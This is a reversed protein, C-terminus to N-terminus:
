SAIETTKERVFERLMTISGLIALITGIFALGATSKIFESSVLMAAGPAYIISSLKGVHRVNEAAGLTERTYAPCTPQAAPTM